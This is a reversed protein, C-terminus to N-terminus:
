ALSLEEKRKKLLPRLTVITYVLFVSATITWSIPYSLYIIELTPSARFATLIWFIRFLCAGILSIVTSSISKGLGRVVGCGVEMCALMGYSTFIYLMRKIATDYAIAELSGEVSRHVSYLSLLPDRFLLIIATVFTATLVGLLYCSGMIKPIREYKKAGNNQSTFTIAAQYVSNQAQYIFGELSNASSNGKVVPEFASGPPCITNNVQIISSQILLNSLSFLCGQIGAPLGVYLINKFAQKDFCLRKFSFRCATFDKSLVILLLIASVTNSIMTAISVGEVSTNFGFVFVFNLIVNLIGSLTLVVLPTKTDGKARFIAILYNALSIFPIGSFYIKLYLVSLELLKGKAGMFVLIPRCASIGIVSCIVGFILSMILSTHVTRSTNADDKAGLGKAVMVNAGTSFGIFLNVILGSIPATIGIAGVADPESSFSVIITDAVGYLVQLINTIMLPLIFMLIKSFLAGETMNFNRKELHKKSYSHTYITNQKHLSTRSYTRRHPM